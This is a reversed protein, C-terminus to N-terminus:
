IKVGQFINGMTKSYSLGKIYPDKDTMIIYLDEGTQIIDFVYTDKKLNDVGVKKMLIHKKKDFGLEKITKGYTM